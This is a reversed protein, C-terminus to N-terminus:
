AGQDTTKTYQVTFIVEKIASVNYNTGIRAGGPGVLITFYDSGAKNIESYWFDSGSAQYHAYGSNVKLITEVNQIGFSTWTYVPDWNRDLDDIVITKQYLPKNDIWKGVVTETKSYNTPIRSAYIDNIAEKVNGAKWNPNDSTFKIDSSAISYAAVGVGSSIMCGIIVGIILKTNSKM